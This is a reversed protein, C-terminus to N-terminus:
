RRSEVLPDRSLWEKVINHIQKRGLRPIAPSSKIVRGTKTAVFKGATSSRAVHGKRASNKSRASAAKTTGRARESLKSITAKSAKSKSSKAATKQNM